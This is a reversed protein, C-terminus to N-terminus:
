EYRGFFIETFRGEADVIGLSFARPRTRRGTDSM